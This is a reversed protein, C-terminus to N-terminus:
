PKFEEGWDFSKRLPYGGGFNGFNKQISRARESGTFHIGFLPSIEAEFPEAQSWVGVLSPFSVSENAGHIAVSTRLVLHHHHTLSRIFASVFLHDKAEYVSLNELYDMRFSEEMRLWASAEIMRDSGIEIMFLDSRGFNKIQASTGFAQEFKKLLTRM